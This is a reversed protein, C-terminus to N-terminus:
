ERHAPPRNARSGEMSIIFRAGATGAVAVRRWVASLIPGTGHFKRIVVQWPIKRRIDFFNVSEMLGFHRRPLLAELVAQRVAPGIEAVVAAQVGLDLLCPALDHLRRPRRPQKRQMEGFRDAAAPQGAGLHEKDLLFDIGETDPQARRNQAPGVAGRGPQDIAALRLARPSFVLQWPTVSGCAPEFRKSM